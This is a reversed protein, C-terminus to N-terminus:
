YIYGILAMPMYNVGFSWGSRPLQRLAVQAYMPQQPNDTKELLGIIDTM